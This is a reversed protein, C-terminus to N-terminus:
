RQATFQRVAPMARKTRTEQTIESISNGTSVYKSNLPANLPSRDCISCSLKQAPIPGDTAESHKHPDLADGLFVCDKAGPVREPSRKRKMGNQCWNTGPQCNVGHWFCNEHSRNLSSIVSIPPREPISVITEVTAM